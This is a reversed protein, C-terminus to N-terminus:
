SVLLKPLFQQLTGYSVGRGAAEEVCQGLKRGDSWWIPHTLLQMPRPDIADPWGWRFRHMSDSHYAFSEEIVMRYVIECRDLQALPAVDSHNPAHLTMIRDDLGFRDASDRAKTQAMAIEEGRELIPHPHCGHGMAAIHNIARDLAEPQGKLFPSEVCFFYSARIGLAHELDAMEMAALCSVEVDHRFWIAKPPPVSRSNEPLWLMRLDLLERALASYQETDWPGEIKM